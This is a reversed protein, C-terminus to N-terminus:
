RCIVPQDGTHPKFPSAATRAAKETKATPLPHDEPSIVGGFHSLFTYSVLNLRYYWINGRFPYQGLLLSNIYYGRM